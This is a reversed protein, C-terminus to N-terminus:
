SGAGIEQLAKAEEDAPIPKGHWGGQKAELLSVGKGKITNAVIAQPKGKVGRAWEFARAVEDLSHGDITTVELGFARLKDELPDLPQVDAVAGTQQYGNRDVILTLNDLGHNGAYMAAEWVQGQESEGDGVMVYVRYDRGDLRGALAHGIAISFGQGLSGTSAEVGPLRCMNPHGELPSGMKRLSLLDERPFYGAEALVAYLGPAGHGKSLVFRDRGPDDPIAPDHRLVGGFYLVTLIEVMSLSTSPHGSAAASTAQVIDRRIRKAIEALETADNHPGPM